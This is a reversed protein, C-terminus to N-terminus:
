ARLADHLACALAALASREELIVLVDRVVPHWYGPFVGPDLIVLAVLGRPGFVALGFVQDRCLEDFLKVL